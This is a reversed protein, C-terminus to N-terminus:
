IYPISLHCKQLFYDTNKCVASENRAGMDPLGSYYCCRPTRLEKGGKHISVYMSINFLCM